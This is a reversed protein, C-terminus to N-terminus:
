SEGPLAELTDPIIVEELRVDVGLRRAADTMSRLLGIERVWTPTSEGEALTEGAESAVRCRWRPGPHDAPIDEVTTWSPDLDSAVFAFSMISAGISELLRALEGIAEVLDATMVTVARDHPNVFVEVGDSM